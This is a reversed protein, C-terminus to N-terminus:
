DDDTLSIDVVTAAPAEGHRLGPDTSPPTTKASRGSPAHSRLVASAANLSDHM